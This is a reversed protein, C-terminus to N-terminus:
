KKELTVNYWISVGKRGCGPINEIKISSPNLFHIKLYSMGYPINPLNSILLTDQKQSWNFKNSTCLIKTNSEILGLGNPNLTLVGIVNNMKYKKVEAGPYVGRTCSDVNILKWTGVLSFEQCKSENIGISLFFNILIFFKLFSKM